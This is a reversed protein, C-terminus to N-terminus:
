KEAGMTRESERLIHLAIGICDNKDDATTVIKTFDMGVKRLFLSHELLYNKLSIYDGFAFASEFDKM